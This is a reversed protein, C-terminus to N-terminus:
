AKTSIYQISFEDSGIGAIAFIDYCYQYTAKASFGLNLRFTEAFSAGESVGPNRIIM